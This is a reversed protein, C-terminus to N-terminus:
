PLITDVPAFCRISVALTNKCEILYTTDDPTSPIRGCYFPGKDISDGNDLAYIMDYRYTRSLDNVDFIPVKIASFGTSNDKGSILKSANQVGGIEAFLEKWDSLTPIRTLDPCHKHMLWSGNSGKSKVYGINMRPYLGGYKKCNSESNQACLANIKAIALYGSVDFDYSIGYDDINKAFIGTYINSSLWYKNGIRSAPSSETTFWGDTFYVYDTNSDLNNNKSLVIADENYCGVLVCLSIIASIIHVNLSM